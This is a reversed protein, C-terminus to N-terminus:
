VAHCVLPPGHWSQVFTLDFRFRVLLEYRRHRCEKPRHSQSNSDAPQASFLLQKHSCLSGAGRCFCGFGQSCRMLMTADGVLRGGKKTRLNPIEPQRPPAGRVPALHPLATGGGLVGSALGNYIVAQCVRKKTTRTECQLNEGGGWIETVPVHHQLPMTSCPCLTWRPPKEEWAASAGFCHWLLMM